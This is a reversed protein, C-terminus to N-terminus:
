TYKVSQFQCSKSIIHIHSIRSNRSSKEWGKSPVGLEEEDMLIVSQVDVREGEGTETKM